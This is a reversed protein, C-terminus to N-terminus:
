TSKAEKIELPKVGDNRLVIDKSVKDNPGITGFDYVYGTAKLDPIALRPNDGVPTEPGVPQRAAPVPVPTASPGSSQAQAQPQDQGQSPAQPQAQPQGGQVQAQNAVAAAPAPSTGAGRGLWFALGFIICGALIGLGLLLARMDLRIQVTDGPPRRQSM